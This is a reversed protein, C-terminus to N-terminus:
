ILHTKCCLGYARVNASLDNSAYNRVTLEITDTGCIFSYPVLNLNGMTVGAVSILAYGEPITLPVTVSTAGGGKFVVGTLVNNVRIFSDNNKSNLEKVALAGAIMNEQTNAEIEEMTDLVGDTLRETIANVDASGFSDGVQLYDTVDEFSVTGDDNTIMRYKRKENVSTDLVDDKYDTKLDAM